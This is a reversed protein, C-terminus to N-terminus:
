MEVFSLHWFPAVSKNLVVICVQSQSKGDPHIHVTFALEPSHHKICYCLPITASFRLYNM